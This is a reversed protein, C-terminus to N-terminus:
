HSGLSYITDKAPHKGQLRQSLISPTGQPIRVGTNDSQFYEHKLDLTNIHVTDWVTFLNHLRTIGHVLKHPKGSM